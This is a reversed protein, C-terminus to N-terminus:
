KFDIKTLIKKLMNKEDETIDTKIQYNETFEDYVYMSFVGALEEQDTLVALIENEFREKAVTQPITIKVKDTKATKKKFFAKEKLKEFFGVKKEKYGSMEESTSVTEKQLEKM